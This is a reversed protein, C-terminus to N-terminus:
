TGRFLHHGLRLQDAAGIHVPLPQGPHAPGEGRGGQDDDGRDRDERDHVRDYHAEVVHRHGAVAEAEVAEGEAVVVQQDVGREPTVRQVEGEVVRSIVTTNSSTRPVQM